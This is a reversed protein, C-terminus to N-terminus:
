KTNEIKIWKSQFFKLNEHKKWKQDIKTKNKKKGTQKQISRTPDVLGNWSLRTKGVADVREHQGPRFLLIIYFFYYFIYKFFFCM